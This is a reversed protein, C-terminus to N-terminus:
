SGGCVEPLGDLSARTLVHEVAPLACSVTSGHGRDPVVIHRSRPLHQGVREAIFPPNSPDFRGTLLLTPVDTDLPRRLAPAIANSTWLRCTERYEDVPYRGLFTGETEQAIDEERLFAVDEACLVSLHHGMSFGNAFSAAREWHFQAFVSLDGSTAAGHIMAPLSPLIDARYLMGRIAYGFDGRTMRVSTEGDRTRVRANVPAKDLRAILKAFDDRLEPHRARCEAQSDCHAFLEDLAHQATRAYTLPADLDFPVVADIVAASVREPYRRAYAQAMRTGYSVGYVSVKEYGLLARIDDVDRVAIDTLYMDLDAGQALNERCARFLERDFLRGFAADPDTAIGSDCDLPNSGGTGRQDVLVIDHTARLAKLPGNAFPAMSISGEGPGGAFMFVAKGGSPDSARLRVFSIAIRRGAAQERNEYVLHQGCDADSGYKGGECPAVPRASRHVDAANADRLSAPGLILACLIPVSTYVSHRM